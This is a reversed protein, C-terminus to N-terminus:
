RVVKVDAPADVKVVVPRGDLGREVRVSVSRGGPLAMAGEAWQLDGLNPKVQVTRCGVDLPRIGLVNHICWAAPGASWGHCLSHRFGKYCFEGYDGHVDKMGAVPLSDVRFANNTWALNFDEWFSTAGMDLMGGWYDRVTDLARQHEGALSMAEIMYYGYFTSVKAHGDRGLSEAFMEKPDRLGSLALLAASSKAGSPAPRLKGLEAALSRARAALAADGLADAMFATDRACMLALAQTGAKAAAGNHQTPWDLFTGATWEGGKMGTLVHAFTASIYAAHRRLYEIDGTYRYWEAVNRLWWLTYTPMENMWKDPATTAAMYDLSEPLVDAAGFVALVAMTEPHTDGMWVLRDRKIGDWLYNQCCLHVTRVATEWVANLREDSSRFAGLRKMPRMVSVARVYEIQVAGGGVNDIRAFRFGSQGIERMGCWPLDVVGDRSAHDSCSGKEGLESMAEAVSEGFRVRARAQSKGRRTGCGIQISGHLERGFDLLLWEGPSLVPGSGRGFAGESVQWHRPGCLADAGKLSQSTAVVRTPPVMERVCPDMKGAFVVACELSAAAIVGITSYTKM